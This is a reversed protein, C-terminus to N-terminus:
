KRAGSRSFWTDFDVKGLRPGSGPVLTSDDLLAGFYRVGADAQVTRTDGIRGMYRQALESLRVKEPGAIEVIGNVPAGLTADAMAQAVDDSAIPQVYASSLRVEDGQTGSQVIGGLFEFFQTSHVITYPIGAAEILDEQAIKGRFYGSEALRRTGVVSLAVHHRVGARKEAALLNRGSTQFFELVAKDEFSPSNAVDVVVDVGALAADLGEGTITNVGTAPSAAIAEHGREALLKVLKSGILGTGGIVLIKM